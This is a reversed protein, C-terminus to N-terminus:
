GLLAKVEDPSLGLKDLVAQRAADREAQEAALQACHKEWDERAKVEEATEDREIITEEGTIVNVNKEIIRM